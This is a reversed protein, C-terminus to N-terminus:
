IYRGRAASFGALYASGYGRRPETVVRAGASAALEASRDQSANDAVVVEGDIGADDLVTQALTVCREINSEENLCPIVVSVIPADDAVAEGVPPMTPQARSFRNMADNATGSMVITQVRSSVFLRALPAVAYGVPRRRRGGKAAM